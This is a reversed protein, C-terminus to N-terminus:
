RSYDQIRALLQNLYGKPTAIATPPPSLSVREHDISQRRDPFCLHLAHTASYFAFVYRQPIAFHKATELLSCPQQQWLAAIQLAYPPMPLRSLNPWQILVVRKNLPTGAPLRGHATWLAIKWLLTEMPQALLQHTQYYSVYDSVTTLKLRIQTLPLM